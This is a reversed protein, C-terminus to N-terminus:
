AQWASFGSPPSYTFSAASFRGTCEYVNVNLMSAAPFFTGSIGSFAEGTGAAPDGGGGWTNENAMWVKGGTFDVAVGIVTDADWASSYATPTANYYKNGNLVYIGYGNTNGGPFGAATDLAASSNAIGVIINSDAGSTRVCRIEFYHKGSSRGLTARAMDWTSTTGSTKRAILNAGSLTVRASKDSPNWTVSSATGYRYPNLLMM